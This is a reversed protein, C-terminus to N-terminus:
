ARVTDQEGLASLLLLSRKDDSEGPENSIGGELEFNQKWLIRYGGSGPGPHWMHVPPDSTEFVEIRYSLKGSDPIDVCNVIGTVDDPAITGGLLGHSGPITGHYTYYIYTGIFFGNRVPVEIEIADEKTYYVKREKASYRLRKPVLLQRTKTTERLIRMEFPESVITGHWFGSDKWNRRVVWGEPPEGPVSYEIRCEYLGPELAKRERVLPLSVIWSELPRGDLPVTINGPDGPPMCHFPDYPKITVVRQTKMNTLFLTLFADHAHTNLERLGPELHEPTCRLEFRVKLPTGQEVWAPVAVKCQLGHHEKAWVTRVVGMTPSISVSGGTICENCLSEIRERNLRNLRPESRWYLMIDILIDEAGEFSIWNVAELAQELKAHRARLDAPLDRWQTAKLLPAQKKWFALEERLMETLEPGVGSGGSEALAKVVLYHRDLLAEEQLMKRLYPLAPTGCEALSNFARERARHDNVDTFAVLAEARDKSDSLSIAKELGEDKAYAWTGESLGACVFFASSLIVTFTRM